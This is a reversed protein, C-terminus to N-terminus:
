THRLAEVPKLYAAKVAPYVAFLLAMGLVIGVTWYLVLPQLQPYIIASIGYQNMIEEGYGFDIGRWQFYFVVPVGIALGILVGVLSLLVSETYLMLSVLWPRMGLSLLVGFEHIREMFAMLFTNAIGFGVVVTLIGYFILGSNWDLKISQEIGPLIEPWGLVLARSFGGTQLRAKMEEEVASRHKDHELLFAIESVAGKMAFAEQITLIHAAVTTRDMEAIGFHLLGRVYLRGAAISGDAGQGIFVIEDGVEAGLNKALGEGLLAGELDDDGLYSGQRVVAKLTSTRAERAPDIGFLVTGFTRQEKSVLAAANVRPTSAEVHPVDRLADMITEYGSLKKALEMDPWYGERQIQLHGSHARVTNYIMEAYSGRQLAMIFVLLAVAFAVALATLMSRRKNRGM